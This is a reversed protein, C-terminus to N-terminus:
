KAQKQSLSTLKMPFVMAPRPRPRVNRPQRQAARNGSRPIASSVSIPPVEHGLLVESNVLNCVGELDGARAPPRAIARRGAAKAGRPIIVEIDAEPWTSGNRDGQFRVM